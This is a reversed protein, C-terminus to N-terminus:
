LISFPNLSHSTGCYYMHIALSSYHGVPAILYLLTNCVLFCCSKNRVWVRVKLVHSVLTFSTGCNPVYFFAFHRVSFVAPSMACGCGVSEFCPWRTHFHKGCKPAILPALIGCVLFLLPWQAAVGVSYFHMWQPEPSLTRDGVSKLHVLQPEARGEPRTQAKQDESLVWVKWICESPNLVAKQARRIALEVDEKRTVVDGFRTEKFKPEKNTADERESRPVHWSLGAGKSRFVFALRQPKTAANSISFASAALSHEIITGQTSVVTPLWPPSVVAATFNTCQVYMIIPLYPPAAVVDTSATGQIAMIASLCPPIIVVAKFLM